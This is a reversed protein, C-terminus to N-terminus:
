AFGADTGHPQEQTGRLSSRDSQTPRVRDPRASRSRGIAAASHRWISRIALLPVVVLGLAVLPLALVAAAAATLILLPLAFPFLVTVLIGGGALLAAVESVFNTSDTSRNPSM